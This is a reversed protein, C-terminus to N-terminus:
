LMPPECCHSAPEPKPPVPLTVIVASEAVLTDPVNEIVKAAPGPPEPVFVRVFPANLM